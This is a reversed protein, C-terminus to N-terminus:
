QYSRYSWRKEKYFLTHRKIYIFYYYHIGSYKASFITSYVYCDDTEDIQTMSLFREKFGTRFVVLVPAFDLKTDKSLKITFRISEDRKVAGFPSKYDNNWSDYILM